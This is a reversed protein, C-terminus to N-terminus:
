FDHERHVKSIVEYTEKLLFTVYTSTGNRFKSDSTIAVANGNEMRDIVAHSLRNQIFRAERYKILNDELKILRFYDPLQLARCGM